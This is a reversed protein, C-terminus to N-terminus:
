RKTGFNMLILLRINNVEVQGFPQACVAPILPLARGEGEPLRRRRCRTRASVRRAAGSGDFVTAEGGGANAVHCIEAECVQLNALVHAMQPTDHYM